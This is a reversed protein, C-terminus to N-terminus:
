IDYVAIWLTSFDDKFNGIYLSLVTEWATLRSHFGMANKCHQIFDIFLIKM